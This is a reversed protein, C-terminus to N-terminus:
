HQCVPHLQILMADAISQGLQLNFRAAIVHDYDTVLLVPHAICPM